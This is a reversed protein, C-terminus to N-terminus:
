EKIMQAEPAFVVAFPRGIAGEPCYSECIDCFTCDAPRVITAKYGHVEVAGTPCRMECEGCGNCRTLDIQPLPWVANSM